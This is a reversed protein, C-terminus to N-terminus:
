QAIKLKSTLKKMISMLTFIKINAEECLTSVDLPKNTSNEVLFKLQTFTISTANEVSFITKVPNLPDETIDEDTLIECKCHFNLHM